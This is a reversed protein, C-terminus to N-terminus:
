WEEFVSVEERSTLAYASEVFVSDVKKWVGAYGESSWGCRDETSLTLGM